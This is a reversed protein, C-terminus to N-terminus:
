FLIDDEWNNDVPAKQQQRQPAQEQNNSKSGLLQLSNAKVEVKSRKQGDQEWRNQVLEGDVCVQTGKMLYKSLAEGQKGWLVIDFYSTEPEWNDGKKVSKGSAISFKCVATGAGTYRLENDRTLRGVLVVKNIDNAM